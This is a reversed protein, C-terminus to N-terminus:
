SNPLRLHGEIRAIREGHGDVKKELEAHKDEARDRRVAWITLGAAALTAFTGLAGLIWGGISEGGVNILIGQDVESCSGL